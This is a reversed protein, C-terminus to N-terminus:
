KGPFIMAIQRPFAFGKYTKKAKLEQPQLSYQSAVLRQIDEITVKKPKSNPIIDKLAEAALDANMDQNIM